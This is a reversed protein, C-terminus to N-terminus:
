LPAVTLATVRSKLARECSGLESVAISRRVTSGPLVSQCMRASSVRTGGPCDCDVVWCVNAGRKGSLHEIECDLVPESIASACTVTARVPSEEPKGRSCGLTLTLGVAAAFYARKAGM